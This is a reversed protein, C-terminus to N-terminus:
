LVFVYAFRFNLSYLYTCFCLQSKGPTRRSTVAKKKKVLVSNKNSKKVNSGSEFM